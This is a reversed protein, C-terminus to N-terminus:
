FVVNRSWVLQYVKRCKDVGIQMSTRMEITIDNSLDRDAREPERGDEGLWERAM